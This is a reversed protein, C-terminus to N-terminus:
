EKTIKEITKLIKQFYHWVTDTQLVGKVESVYQSLMNINEDRALSFALGVNAAVSNIVAEKGKGQMLSRAIEASEKANKIVLDHIDCTTIGISKPDITYTSCKGNIDNEELHYVKTPCSISVEDMGDEGRIVWVKKRGLSYAVRLMIECMYEESCGILQIGINSPNILPGLFNVLTFSGIKKRVYALHRMSSHYIPAALFTYNVEEFINKAQLPSMDIPYGLMTLVDSSGSRSSVARNGHKVVKQGMAALVISSMTSINCTKLGDGGTGVIDISKDASDEDFYIHVAKKLLSDSFAKINEVSAGQATIGMLLAAAQIDDVVGNSLEDAIFSARKYGLSKRRSLLSMCEKFTYPVGKDSLFNKIIELGGVTAISEPHFQVGETFHRRHRLGMIEDEETYATIELEEPVSVSEVALSHYRVVTLPSTFTRFLHKGDHIVTDIKGHMIKKAHVIKGDFAQAIVQLGLCVGLIPVTGSLRKVLELSIGADVPTGPGPSIIIHTYDEEEIQEVTKEDNRVVTVKEADARKCFSVLNYTFSDYNDVVLVSLM